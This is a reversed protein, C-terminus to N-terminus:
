DDDDSSLWKLIMPTFYTIIVNAGARKFSTMVEWVSTKLDFVGHQNAATMMMSYEGSVNYVAIPFDPFRRSIESIIDLYPLGPKVMVMDCGEEIDRQVARLALGKSGIPLQYARRDGFKPASGAADRFPGYFCSQFKASYSLLSVTAYGNANLATRIRGVRADMMDSPAVVHAGVEAYRVAILAIKEISRTNDMQNDNGTFVCCHGEPSFTCLCVDCIILLDPFEQRLRPILRLVPNLKEDFAQEIQKDDSSSEMVPFLLVSKLQYRSVLPRLYEICVNAGMRSVEPLSGIPQSDNDDNVIFLPLCFDTATFATTGRSQWDRLVSHSQSSHLYHSLNTTSSSSSSSSM